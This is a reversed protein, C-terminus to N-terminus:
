RAAPLAFQGSVGSITLTATTTGSTGSVGAPYYFNLQEIVYGPATGCYLVTAPVGGISLTCDNTTAVPRDAAAPTGNKQATQKPGFGTGYLTCWQDPRPAGSQCALAALGTNWDFYAAPAAPLFTVPIADIATGPRSVQVPVEKGVPTEWPVQLNIQTPSVYTLPSAV